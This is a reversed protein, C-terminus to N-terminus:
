FLEQQLISANQLSNTDSHINYDKQLHMTDKLIQKFLEMCVRADDDARHAQLVNINFRKALSQLKYQGSEKEKSFEPYAWRALQLTDICKNPIAPYNMRGLETNVFGLDFPANHAVLIAKSDGLFRMFDPLAKSAYPKDLVMENTIHTLNTLFPTIPVPPKILQDYRSVEGECTFKVAGVEMLFDSSAHLGTTETDFAIFVTGSYYERALHKYDKFLNEKGGTQAM